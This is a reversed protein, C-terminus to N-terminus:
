LVYESRESAYVAIYIQDALFVNSDDTLEVQDYLDNLQSAFNYNDKTPWPNAPDTSIFLDADGLMTM